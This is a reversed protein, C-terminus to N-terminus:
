GISFAREILAQQNLTHKKVFGGAPSSTEKRSVLQLPKLTFRFKRNMFIWAGMNEPEEQVWCWTQCNPYRAIVNELQKIPLPYLQELRVIAV